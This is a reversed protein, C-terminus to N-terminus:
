SQTYFSQIKLFKWPATGIYIEAGKFQQEASDTHFYDYKHKSNHGQNDVSATTAHQVQMVFVDNEFHKFRASLENANQFQSKIFELDPRAKVDAESQEREESSNRTMNELQSKVLHLESRVKTLETESKEHEESLTRNINELKTRLEVELAQSQNLKASLELNKFKILDICNAEHDDKLTRQYEQNCHECIVFKLQCQDIHTDYDDYGIKEECGDHPCHMRFHSLVQRVVRQPQILDSPSFFQTQCYPCSIIEM